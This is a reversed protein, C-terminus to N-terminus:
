GPEGFATTQALFKLDVRGLPGMRRKAVDVEAKGRVPDIKARWDALKDYYNKIGQEPEERRLYYEARYLFWVQDADQEIAGSDRLDSLAPRKDDRAEVGRNLQSLVLVPVDLEKALAKLGASIQTVAINQSEVRGEPQMLQLYDIVVLSLGHKRKMRRCASRIQSVRMGARDDVHLPVMKLGASAHQLCPWGDGINGHLVDSVPLNALAALLSLTQQKRSMELSFFAVPGSARAVSYAIQRALSTKGMSPRAALVILDPSLLGGTGHDLARLGTSLGLLRGGNQAAAEVHAMAADVDGGVAHLGGGADRDTLGFLDSEAAEILSAASEPAARDHAGNIISEGVEILRRRLYCDRIERAYEPGNIVTVVSAALTVLYKAGGVAALAEDGDFAGKLTIPSAAGGSDLLRGIAEYIRAHVPDAFHESRLVDSFREYVANNTLIAGLLAAEAELNVPAQRSQPMRYDDPM